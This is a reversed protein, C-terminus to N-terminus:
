FYRKVFEQIAYSITRLESDKTSNKSLVISKEIECNLIINERYKKTSSSYSVEFSITDPLEKYDVNCRISQNPVLSLNKINDFPVCTKNKDLNANSLDFDCKLDTILAISNGCNKIVITYEPFGFNTVIGYIVVYPRTSEEIMANNQKLTILVTIISIVALIFSLICLIMNIITSLDVIIWRGEGCNYM